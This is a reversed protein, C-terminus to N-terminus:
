ICLVITYSIFQEQNVLESLLGAIVKCDKQVSTLTNSNLTRLRDMNQFSSDDALTSIVISFLVDEM